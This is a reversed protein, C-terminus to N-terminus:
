LVFDEIKTTYNFLNLFGNETILYNDEVRIGFNNEFYIGPELTVTMGTELVNTNEPLFQPQMFPQEGFRHGAHHPFYRQYEGFGSVMAGHIDFASTGNKLTKEAESKAQLVANYALLQEQSPEGIFFTRTTDTWIGDLCFQLDLILCDGKKLVYDTADGEIAGSRIGAVFDGAFEDCKCNAAILNKIDKETMGIRFNQRVSDYALRNLDLIKKIQETM